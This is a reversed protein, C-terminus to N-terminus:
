NAQAVYIPTGLVIYSRDEYVPPLSGEALRIALFELNQTPGLLSTNTACVGRLLEADGIRSTSQIGSPHKIGQSIKISYRIFAFTFSSRIWRATRWYLSVDFRGAGPYNRINNHWWLLNPENNQMIHDRDCVFCGRSTSRQHIWQALM